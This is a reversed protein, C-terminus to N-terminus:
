VSTFDVSQNWSSHGQHESLTVPFNSSTVDNQQLTAHLLEFTRSPQNHFRTVLLFFSINHMITAKTGDLWRAIIDKILPVEM